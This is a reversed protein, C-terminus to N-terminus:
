ARRLTFVPIEPLCRFRLSLHSSVGRSTYMRTGQHRSWGSAFARGVRTHTIPPGFLPLVVQGGHTHGCLVMPIDRLAAGHIIDPSHALLLHPPTELGRVAKQLDAAQVRATTPDVGALCLGGPLELWENRLLRLGADQLAAPLGTIPKRTREDFDHDGLVAVVGHAARLQSMYAACPPAERARRLLFDGTILILDPSEANAIEVTRRFLWDSRPNGYHLDTLHVVRRGEWPVPLRPIPLEHRTVAIRTPEILTARVALAGGAAAAGVVLPVFLPDM